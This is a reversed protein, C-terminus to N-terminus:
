FEIDDFTAEQNATAAEIITAPDLRKAGFDPPPKKTTNPKNFSFNPKAVNAKPAPTDLVPAKSAPATVVPPKTVPAAVKPAPAKTAPAAPKTTSDNEPDESDGSIFFNKMIFYKFAGAQSKYISKDLADAGTGASQLTISEGSDADVLTHEFIIQYVKQENNKGAPSMETSSVLSTFIVLNNDLLAPRIAETIDAETIYKYKHFNNWGTKEVKGEVAKIVKLMKSALNKM